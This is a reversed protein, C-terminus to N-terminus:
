DSASGAVLARDRFLLLITAAVLTGTLAGLSNAVFDLIEADRGAFAQLIELAGSLLIVGAIAGALRPRLGLIMTAMSALGFYAIFHDAKDWDLPGQLHPPHPTLEGWAILAVGPWFLWLSLVRLIKM